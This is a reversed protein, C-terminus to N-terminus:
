NLLDKLASDINPFSFKYGEEMIKKPTVRSGNLLMVSMEGFLIRIMASPINPLWFPKNLSKAIKRAFDSNTIHEPAVTNYAGEMTSNKLASLYINCLDDIHIWPMYQKGSGIASGLGM